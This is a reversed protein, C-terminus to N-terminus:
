RLLVMKRTATHRGAVLSYFYVGSAVSDGNRNKGDWVVRHPGPPLERALVTEVLRGSVDYVRITALAKEPLTFRITTGPNFPNPHNQELVFASAPTRDVVATPVWPEGLFEGLITESNMRLALHNWRYPRGSLFVFKGGDSRYTGGSVPERIVGVGRHTTFSTTEKFLLTSENTALSTDFVACTNQTSTRSMSILSPHTAVANVLTNTANERWTIGLYNRLPEDIFDQGLRTLLFVNGGAELYSLIATDNWKDLDGNYNNGVWIVTSFQKITDIPPTGHGLPPPLNAPYGSGTENFCDWFSIDFDGWFVSDAYASRIESGYTATFDL